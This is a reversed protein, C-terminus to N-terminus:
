LSLEFCYVQLVSGATGVTLTSAANSIAGRLAYTRASTSGAVEAFVVTFPLTVNPDNFQFISNTSGQTNTGDKYVTLHGINGNISATCVCVYIIYSTATKPTITVSSNSVEVFTTSTTSLQQGGAGATQKNTSLQSLNFTPSAYWQAEGTIEKIINRLRQIEGEASTALSETGVEGPDTRAQMASVNASADDLGAPTFNTIVNDFENNREAATILQGTTVTVLKSFNGPM